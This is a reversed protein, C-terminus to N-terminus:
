NKFSRYNEIQLRHKFPPKCPIREIDNTNACRNLILNYLNPIVYGYNTQTHKLLKIEGEKKDLRITNGAYKEKIWDKLLSFVHGWLYCDVPTLGILHYGHKTSYIMYSIRENKFLTDIKKFEEQTYERDIDYFILYHIDEESYCINRLGLRLVFHHKNLYQLADM